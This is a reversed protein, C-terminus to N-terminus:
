KHYRSGECIKFARYIQECLMVRFLQHPFTMESVSLRMDARRKVSDCLGFSSGIIFCMNKGQSMNRSFLQAFAESEMQKGEVCLACVFADKPIHKEINAAESELAADIEKESPSDDLQRPPLEIIDFSCYRSLRKSYEGVAERLYKEKLKGLAIITIKIM